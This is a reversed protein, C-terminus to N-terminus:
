EVNNRLLFNILKSCDEFGTRYIPEIDEVRKIYMDEIEAITDHLHDPVVHKLKSLLTDFRKYDDARKREVERIVEEVKHTISPELFEM